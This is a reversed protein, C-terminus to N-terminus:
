KIARGQISHRRSGTMKEKYKKVQVAMKSVANSITIYLDGGESQSRFTQKGAHLIIEARQAKKEVTLIVQAWIINSFYKQLKALKKEAFEKIPKTLKIHRAVIHITM